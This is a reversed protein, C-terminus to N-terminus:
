WCRRLIQLLLPLWGLSGTLTGDLKANNNCVTRLEYHLMSTSAM